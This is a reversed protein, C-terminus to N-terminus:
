EPWSEAVSLVGVYALDVCSVASCTGDTTWAGCGTLSAAVGVSSPISTSVGNNNPNSVGSSTMASTIGPTSGPGILSAHTCWLYSVTM